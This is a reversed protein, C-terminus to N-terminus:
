AGDAEQKDEHLERLSTLTVKGIPAVPKHNILPRSYKKELKSNLMTNTGEEFPLSLAHSVENYNRAIREQSRKSNLGVPPLKSTGVERRRGSSGTSSQVQSFWVGTATRSRAELESM